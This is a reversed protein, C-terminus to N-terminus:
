GILVMINKRKAWEFWQIDFHYTTPDSGAFMIHIESGTSVILGVKGNWEILDGIKM